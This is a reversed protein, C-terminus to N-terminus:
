FVVVEPHKDVQLTYRVRRHGHNRSSMDLDKAIHAMQLHESSETTTLTMAGSNRADQALASTLEYPIRTDAFRPNVLVSFEHTMSEPNACYVAIGLPEAEDGEESVAVLVMHRDSNGGCYGSLPLEPPSEFEGYTLYKDMLQGYTFEGTREHPALPRVLVKRGDVFFTTSHHAVAMEIRRHDSYVAYTRTQRAPNISTLHPM